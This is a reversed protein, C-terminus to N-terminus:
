EDPEDVAWAAHAALLEPVHRRRGRVEIAKRLGIERTRERVSVLMSNM